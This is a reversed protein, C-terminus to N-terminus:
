ILYPVSEWKVGIKRECGLLVFSGIDGTYGVQSMKKINGSFLFIISANCQYLLGDVHEDRGVKGAPSLIPFINAFLSSPPPPGVLAGSIIITAM